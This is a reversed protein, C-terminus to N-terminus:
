FLMRQVLGRAGRPGTTRRAGPHFAVENRACRILARIHREEWALARAADPYARERRRFEPGHHVRRGDAGRPADLIAHLLEHHLVYRVFWREVHPSDLVPHLRIARDVHDFSGLRLSRRSRSGRARGWGIAPWPRSAFDPALLPRLDGAIEDLDHFKGAALLRPRRPQDESLRRLRADIWQDLTRTARRARNGARMWAALAARVEPPAEAFFSSLHVVVGGRRRQVRVVHHRARGYRVRLPAGDGPALLAQWDAETLGGPLREPNARESESL